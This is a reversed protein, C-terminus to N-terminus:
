FSYKLYWQLAPTIDNFEGDGEVSFKLWTNVKSPILQYNYQASVDWSDFSFSPMVTFDAGAGFDVGAKDNLTIGYGLGAGAALDFDDALTTTANADWSLGAVDGSLKLGVFKSMATAKKELVNEFLTDFEVTFLGALPVKADLSVTADTEAIDGTEPSFLKLGFGAVFIGADYKAGIGTEQFFNGLENAKVGKNPFGFVFGFNLASIPTIELRAGANSGPVQWDKFGTAQWVGGTGGNGATLKFMGGGFKVWGNLNGFYHGSGTTNDKNRDANVGVNVGWDDGSNTFTLRAKVAHGDNDNAEVTMDDKLTVKAGTEVSGNFSQAFLGGAVALILFVVLAKKM